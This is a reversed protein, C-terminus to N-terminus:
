RQTAALLDKSRKPGVQGLKRTTQYKRRTKAPRVRRTQQRQYDKSSGALTVLCTPLGKIAPQELAHKYRRLHNKNQPTIDMLDAPSQSTSSQRMYARMARM